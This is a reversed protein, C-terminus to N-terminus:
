NSIYIEEAIIVTKTKGIYCHVENASIMTASDAYFSTSTEKNSGTASSIEVHNRITVKVKGEPTIDCSSISAILFIFLILRTYMYGPYNQTKSTKVIM